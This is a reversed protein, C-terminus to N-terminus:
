NWNREKLNSLRNLVWWSTSFLKTLWGIMSCGTPRNAGISTRGADRTIPYLPRGLPRGIRIRWLFQSVQDVISCRFAPNLLGFFLLRSNLVKAEM